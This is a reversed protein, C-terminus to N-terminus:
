RLTEPDIPELGEYDENMIQEYSVNPPISCEYGKEKAKKWMSETYLRHKGLYEHTRNEIYQWISDAILHNSYKTMADLMWKTVPEYQEIDEEPDEKIEIYEIIEWIDKHLAYWVIFDFVGEKTLTFPQNNLVVWWYGHNGVRIQIKNLGDEVDSVVRSTELSVGWLHNMMDKLTNTADDDKKYDYYDSYVLSEMAGAVFDFPADTMESEGRRIYGFRELLSTENQSYNSHLPSIAIRLIKREGYTEFVNQLQYMRQHPKTTKGIKVGHNLEVAYVYGFHSKEEFDRNNLEELTGIWIKPKNM